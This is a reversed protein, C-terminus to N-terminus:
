QEAIASLVFSEALYGFNNFSPNLPPKSVGYRVFEVHGDMYVVNSGGPIHNFGSPDIAARDSFVFINSAANVAAAPNNLDTILFREIGERIRSLESGGGTGMGERVTLDEDAITHLDTVLVSPAGAAKAGTLKDFLKKLFAAIGEEGQESVPLTITTEGAKVIATSLNTTPDSDEVQDFVWGYYFYSSSLDSACNRLFDDSDVLMCDEPPTPDSPCSFVNLDTAYNPYLGILRPSLSFVVNDYPDEVPLFQDIQISPYNQQPAEGAFMMFIMGMQKMNNQCSSRRAAERARAVAPLMIAALMSLIAVVIMLEVITFGAKKM